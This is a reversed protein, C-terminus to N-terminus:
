FQEKGKSHSLLGQKTGKKWVGIKRRTGNKNYYYEVGDKKGNKYNVVTHLEGTEYYHKSIGNQKGGKYYSVEAVKGTLTHFALVKGDPIRGYDKILKCDGDSLHGCDYVREAVLKGDKYYKGEGNGQFYFVFEYIVGKYEERKINPGYEVRNWCYTMICVVATVVLLGLLLYRLM